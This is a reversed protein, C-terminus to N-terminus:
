LTGPHLPPPTGVQAIRSSLHARASSAKVETRLNALHFPGLFPSFREHLVERSRAGGAPGINPPTFRFAFHMCCVYGTAESAYELAMRLPPTRSHSECGCECEGEECGRSLDPIGVTLRYYTNGGINVPPSITRDTERGATYLHVTHAHHVSLIERWAPARNVCSAPPESEGRYMYGHPPRALHTIICIDVAPAGRRAQTAASDTIRGSLVLQKIGGFIYFRVVGM